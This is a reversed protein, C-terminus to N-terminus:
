LREDSVARIEIQQLVEAPSAINLVDAVGLGAASRARAEIRLRAPKAVFRAVAQGLAKVQDSNGLMAPIAFAAASGYERRLSEPSRRLKKAEQAVYREFFGTNEITV